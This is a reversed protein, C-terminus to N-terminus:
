SRIFIKKIFNLPKPGFVQLFLKQVELKLYAMYFGPYDKRHKKMLNIFAQWQPVTRTQTLGQSNIRYAVGQDPLVAFRQKLGLNLWLEYDEVHGETNSYGGLERVVSARFVVSSHIFCNHRLIEQRIDADAQPFTLLFLDVGNEDVAKGQTGVLAHDPHKKLFEVQKTLKSRDTWFDDGDLRAIFEGQAIALGENLSPVLGLNTQHTITKIRADSNAAAQLIESTNDPSGDNIVILEWDQFDQAQISALAEALYEANKYAPMIISVKASM